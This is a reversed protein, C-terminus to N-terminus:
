RTLEKVLADMDEPVYVTRADVGCVTLANLWVKQAPELRNPKRKLEVVLLRRGSPHVLLLDPFGAHGQVPTM